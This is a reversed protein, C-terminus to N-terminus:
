ADVSAAASARAARRAKLEDTKSDRAPESGGEEQRATGAARGKVTMGLATLVAELKPGLEGAVTQANVRRALASLRRRGDQDDPDLLGAVLEAEEALAAAEDLRTAYLRALAAAGADQPKLTAAKLARDVAYRMSPPKPAM